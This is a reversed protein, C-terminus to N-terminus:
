YGKKFQNPFYKQVLNELIIVTEADPEGSIDNQRFHMQFAQLVNRTQQDLKGTIEIPYGYTKLNEQLEHFNITIAKKIDRIKEAVQQEDFWAGINNEFLKKWPFLPGPDQKRGPAIDSHGIVNVPEIKYDDVIKKALAIVTEIQYEEYPYWYRKGKDDKYGLNVIEIGISTDNINTRTGWRSVGAHWARKRDEVLQFVKREGEISAEPVLYHASVERKPDTLTKLSNDFDLATYHLVLYRIRQNFNPSSHIPDIILNDNNKM